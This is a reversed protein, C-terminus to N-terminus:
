RAAEILMPEYPARKTHEYPYGRPNCVVRTAGLVYDCADHTHGHLWLQPPRALAALQKEMDCVFFHNNPAGLFQRPTSKESPLHHSVFIPSPGDPIPCQTMRREFLAQQDFFWKRPTDTLRMDIFETQPADPRPERFWLTGAFFLQGCIAYWSPELALIVRETFRACAKRLAEHVESPSSRWYDHNGPVFLIKKYCELLRQFLAEHDKASSYSDGALVLLDIEDARKLNALFADDFVAAHDLHLDSMLHIKM